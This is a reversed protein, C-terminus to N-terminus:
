QYVSFREPIGLIAQHNRWETELSVSLASFHDAIDKWMDSSEDIVEAKNVGTM